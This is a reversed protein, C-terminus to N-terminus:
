SILSPLYTVLAPVSFLLAITAADVAGFWLVGKFADEVTLGHLVGKSEQERWRSSPFSMSTVAM